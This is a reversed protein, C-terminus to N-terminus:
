MKVRAMEWLTFLCIEFLLGLELIRTRKILPLLWFLAFSVTPHNTVLLFFTDEAPQSYLATKIKGLFTSSLRCCYLLPPPALEGCVCNVSSYPMDHTEKLSTSQFCWMQGFTYYGFLFFNHSCFSCNIGKKRKVKM